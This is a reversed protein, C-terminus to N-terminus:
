LAGTGPLRIRKTEETFDVFGALVNICSCTGSWDRWRWGSSESSPQKYGRFGRVLSQLM